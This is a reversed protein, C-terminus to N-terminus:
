KILELNKIKVRIEDMEERFGIHKKKKFAKVTIKNNVESM